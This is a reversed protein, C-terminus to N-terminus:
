AHNGELSVVRRGICLLPCDHGIELPQGESPQRLIFVVHQPHLMLMAAIHFQVKDRGPQVQAGALCVVWARWPMLGRM